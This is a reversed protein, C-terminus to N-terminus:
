QARRLVYWCADTLPGAIRRASRSRPDDDRAGHYDVVVTGAPVPAAFADAPLEDVFEASQIETMDLMAVKGDRMRAEIHLKPLRLGNKYETAGFQWIARGSGSKSTVIQRYLFGTSKDAAIEAKSSESADVVVYEDGVVEGVSLTRPSLLTVCDFLSDVHMRFRDQPQITIQRNGADYWAGESGNFLMYDIGPSPDEDVPLRESKRRAGDFTLRRQSMRLETGTWQKYMAGIDPVSGAPVADLSARLEGLPLDCSNLYRRVTAIGRSQTLLEQQKTIEAAMEPLRSEETPVESAVREFRFVVETPAGPALQLPESETTEPTLGRPNTLTLIQVEGPPLIAHIEGASNTSRYDCVIQESSLLHPKDMSETQYRFLVGSIASGDNVDIARVTVRAAAPLRFQQEVSPERGVTITAKQSLLAAGLPPELMLQYEGPPLKLSALGTEDAVASAGRQRAQPGHASVRAGAVPQGKGQAVHIQVERPRDFVGVYMGDGAYVTGRPDTAEPRQATILTFSKHDFEPGPDVLALYDTSDRLQPLSFHGLQDTRAQRYEAPLHRIAAFDVSPVNRNGPDTSYRCRWGGRGQRRPPEQIFGVQVLADALPQGEDDTLMGEWVAPPRFELKVAPSHDIHYDPSSEDSEAEELRRGIFKTEPAWTFGFGDAVGYVCFEGVTAESKPVSPERGTLVELEFEFRGDDDSKTEIPTSEHGVAGINPTDVAFVRAGAVPDGQPDVAVGVVHVRYIEGFGGRGIATEVNRIVEAERKGEKAHVATVLCTSLLLAVNAVRSTLM